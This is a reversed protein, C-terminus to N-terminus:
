HSSNARQSSLALIYSMNLGFYIFIFGWDYKFNFMAFSWYGLIASFMALVTLHHRLSLDTTLVYLNYRTQSIIFWLIGILGLIGAQAFLGLVVNHIKIPTEMGQEALASLLADGSGVGAPNHVGLELGYRYQDLRGGWFAERLQFRRVLGQLFGTFYLVITTPISASVLSSLFTRLPLLGSSVTGLGFVCLMVAMGLIASRSQTTVLSIVFSILIVIYGFRHRAKDNLIARTLTFPMLFIFFLSFSSPSSMTGWFRGSPGANTVRHFREIPVFSPMSETLLFYITISSLFTGVILLIDIVFEFEDEGEVLNTVVFFAGFALVISAYNRLHFTDLPTYFMTLAHALLLFALPFDLPTMRFKHETVLKHLLVVLVLFGVLWPYNIPGYSPLFLRLPIAAALAAVGFHSRYFSLAGVPVLYLLWFTGQLDM